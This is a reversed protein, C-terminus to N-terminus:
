LSARVLRFYDKRRVALPQPADCRLDSITPSAKYAPEPSTRAERFTRRERERHESDLNSCTTESESM